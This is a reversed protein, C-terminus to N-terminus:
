VVTVAPHYLFPLAGVTFDKGPRKLVDYLPNTIGSVPSSKVALGSFNL